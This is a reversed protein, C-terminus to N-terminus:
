ISVKDLLAQTADAASNFEAHDTTGRVIWENDTWEYGLIVTTDRLELLLEECWKSDDQGIRSSISEARDIDEHDNFADVMDSPLPLPPMDVPTPEM